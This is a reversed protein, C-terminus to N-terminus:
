ESEEAVVNVSIEVNVDTHLHLSVVHEGTERLPGDPLRIESRSIEIGKAQLANAIDITGISGFLKGETGSKASFELVTDRAKAERAEADALEKAAKKELDARHAEFAALNTPTALKAKGKPVLFNRGYGPKVSVKDGISGLNEVKELLIVEM